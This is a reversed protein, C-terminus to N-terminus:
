TCSESTVVQETSDYTKVTVSPTTTLSPDRSHICNILQTIRLLEPQSVILLILLLM